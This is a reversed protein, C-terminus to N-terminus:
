ILRVRAAELGGRREVIDIIGHQDENPGHPRIVGLCSDPTPDCGNNLLKCIRRSWQVIISWNLRTHGWILAVSCRWPVTRNPISPYALSCGLRRESDRIDISQYRCPLFM